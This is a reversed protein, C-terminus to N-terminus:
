QAPLLIPAAPVAARMLLSPAVQGAELAARGLLGPGYQPTSQMAKSLALSRAPGRVLPIGAALLGMPNGSAAQGLLGFAPISAADLYNVGPVPTSAGAGSFKPFAANFKGITDLGDSLPKQKDFLRGIVRADVDGTAKNLAREVTYSKAIEKRAEALQPLLGQKGGSVAHWDIWSELNDALERAAKAKALDDPSASRNYANFWGQADNRAQKLAELDKAAQPSLDAVEQYVKGATDRIKKIAGTTIPQDAPLNLAERALRNTVEQNRLTAEQKVAAKGGISELKNAFATPAVESNPVVYGAARAEKLAADKPANLAAKQAASERAKTAFGGIKNAALQGLAGFAAGLEMNTTKGRAINSFTQEGEIPQLLGQAGGILSAGAVTNAGPIMMTPAATLVNSVVSTVPAAKEAQRNQELVKQEIPDLGGLMQKAGLYLNIPATALGYKVKEMTTAPYNEATDLVFGPPPEPPASDIVYGSPPMVNTAM